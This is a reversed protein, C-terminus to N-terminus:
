IEDRYKITFVHDNGITQKKEHGNSKTTVIQPLLFLPVRIIGVM